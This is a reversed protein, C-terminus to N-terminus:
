SWKSFLVLTWILSRHVRGSTDASMSTRRHGRVRVDCIKFGHVHVRLRVDCFKSDRVRIRVRVHSEFVRPCACSASLGRVRMDVLRQDLNHPLLKQVIIM